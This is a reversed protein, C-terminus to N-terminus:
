LKRGQLQFRHENLGTFDDHLRFIFKNGAKLLMPKGTAKSITWRYTVSEDGVGFSSLIEDHCQRKWCTNTKIPIGDVMDLIESSGSDEVLVDIGNTLVIANGYKDADFTGTDRIFIILRQLEYDNSADVFYFDEAAAAYNGTADNAGTGDGAIDLFRFLFDEPEVNDRGAQTILAQTYISM